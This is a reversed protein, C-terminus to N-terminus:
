SNTIATPAKQSCVRGLGGNEKFLLVDHVFKPKQICGQLCPVDNLPSRGDADLIKLGKGIISATLVKGYSAIIQKKCSVLMNYLRTAESERFFLQSSM